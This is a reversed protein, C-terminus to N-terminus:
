SSYETVLLRVERDHLPRGLDLCRGRFAEALRALQAEQCHLGLQRLREAVGQRGVKAGYSWQRRAGVLIPEYPEYTRPDKALGALHLGTECAFIGAGIVPQHAEIKRGSCDAALRALDPLLTTAYPRGGQLALYGAVEELRSNGAREGLGLVTVDAWHAGAELAAIANATAMGFDNHMHVGIEVAFTSRLERVLAGISGPTAVGVTDAIRIRDVGSECAVTVIERLFAPEARTADELGLSVYPVAARARSVARAVMEAVASRKLNLKVRVHLDSVPVSLSLVDPALQLGCAIDEERCRCWLGLRRVGAEGRCRAVLAPLERDLPSAIGVEVEEVGVRVLDRAIAVKQELSFAVGVTQSGERLTSDVLGKVHEM